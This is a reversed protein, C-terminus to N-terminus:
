FFDIYNLHKELSRVFFRGLMKLSGGIKVNDIILYLYFPFCLLNYDLKDKKLIYSLLILERLM